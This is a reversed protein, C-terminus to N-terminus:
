ARLRQQVLAQQGRVEYMYIISSICFLRGPFLAWVPTRKENELKIM